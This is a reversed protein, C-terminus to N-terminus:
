SNAKQLDEHEFASAMRDIEQKKIKYKAAEKRWLAVSAGVERIIKKVQQNQLDFHPAAEIARDLSATADVFDIATALVRPKIDTPTPNLDYAPSLRWGSLGTLLADM